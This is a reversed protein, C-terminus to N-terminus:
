EGRLMQVPDVRGATLAPVLSATVAIAALIGAGILFNVPDIIGSGFVLASLLRGMAVFTLGGALLGICALGFGRQVVSRTISRPSEGLALRIAMERLRRSVSYNVVGYIGVAALALALAGVWGLVVLALYQPALTRNILAELPAIDFVAMTPELEEVANRALAAITNTPLSTRVVVTQEFLPIQRFPAYLASEAPGALDTMKVSGVIGVIRGYGEIEQGIAEQEDEFLEQALRDSIIVVRPSQADDEPVFARGAILPIGMTRFYNPSVATTYVIPSVQESESRGAVRVVYRQGLDGQFGFPGGAVTAAADVGPVANLRELLGEYVAVSRTFGAEGSMGPIVPLFLNMTVVEETRFGPDITLLRALSRLALGTGLLLVFALAVQVVAAGQLFRNSGPGASSGRTVVKLADGAQVRAARLAPVTGFILTALVIIIASFSLVVIDLQLPSSIVTQAASSRGILVIVIWGFFVGAIGGAAAILLSETVVYRVV